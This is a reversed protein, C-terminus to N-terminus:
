LNRMDARSFYGFARKGYEQNLRAAYARLAKVAAVGGASDDFAMKMLWDAKRKKNSKRMWGSPMLWGEKLPVHECMVGHQELAVCHGKITTGYHGPLKQEYYTDCDIELHWGGEEKVESHLGFTWLLKLFYERRKKLRKQMVYSDAHVRNLDRLLKHLARYATTAEESLSLDEPFDVTRPNFPKPPSPRVLDEPKLSARIQDLHILLEYPEIFALYDDEPIPAKLRATARDRGVTSALGRLAECSYESCSACTQIGNITACKRVNCNAVILAPNEADPTQCGDCNIRDPRVRAGLYRHWGDSCRQRDEDTEINEEYAPCRGCNAGCKSFLDKM